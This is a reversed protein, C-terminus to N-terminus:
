LSPVETILEQLRSVVDRWTLVGQRQQEGLNTVEEGLSAHYARFADTLQHLMNEATAQTEEQVMQCLDLRRRMGQFGKWAGPQISHLHGPDNSNSVRYKVVQGTSNVMIASISSPVNNIYGQPFNARADGDTSKVVLIRLKNQVPAEFVVPAGPRFFVHRLDTWNGIARNVDDIDAGGVANRTVSFGIAEMDCQEDFAVLFDLVIPDSGPFSEAIALAFPNNETM